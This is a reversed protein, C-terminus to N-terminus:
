PELWGLVIALLAVRGTESVLLSVIVSAILGLMSLTLFLVDSRRLRISTKPFYMAERQWHISRTRKCMLRVAFLRCGHGSCLAPWDSIGREAGRAEVLQGRVSNKKM